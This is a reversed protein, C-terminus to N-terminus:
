KPKNDLSHWLALSAYSRYPKWNQVIPEMLKVHVDKDLGYNKEIARRLGLDGFSFVDERGLNFILFMEATWRGIGKVKTLETIVEEESMETFQEFALEKNKTKAALDKVYKVKGWSMGIDRLTQDEAKLIMEATIPQNHFLSEFRKYIVDAVKVSLQQGIIERTLRHFYEAPVAQPKLVEFEMTDLINFLIKDTKSFHSKIHASSM